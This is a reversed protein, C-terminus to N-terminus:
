INIAYFNSLLLYISLYSALMNLSDKKHKQMRNKYIHTHETTDLEKCGWSSYGVLSRQGHSKGPVVVSCTAMEKEPSRGSRSIM